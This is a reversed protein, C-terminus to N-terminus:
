EDEKNDKNKYHYEKVKEYIEEMDMIKWGYIESLM